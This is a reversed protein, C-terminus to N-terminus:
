VKFQAILQRLSLALESLNESAQSIEELSATQEEIAASAEETSAANEEAVASLTQIVDQVQNKQDDIVGSAKEIHNTMEQAKAMADTIENFKERTKEVSSEQEKVIADAEKMKLVARNADEKLKSVIADIDKTSRTSQEALKRIEDAVVAFGRGHEGARAAEIAANLALLNTQDAISAILTSAEGIRESSENTKLISEFVIGSAKGNETTKWELNEVIKLGDRISSSVSISAESLQRINGQDEEIIKGLAMLKESGIMTSEAQDSAGRAIESITQAVEFAATSSQHSTATLEEATAALQEASDSTKIIFHAVNERMDNLSKLMVGIEDKKKLYKASSDESDVRFDLQSLKKLVNTIAVIPASIQNAILWTSVLGLSILILTLSVLLLQLSKVPEMVEKKPITVTVAWTTGKISSYGSYKDEGKFWYEGHGTQGEIMRKTMEALAHARPDKQAEEFINYQSEILEIDPHAQLIGEKNIIFAYSTGGISIDKIIASLYEGPRIAVLAGVTKNRYLVPVAYATVISGDVKSIITDSVNPIGELASKVYSRDSLDKSTGDSYYAIGNLDVFALRMYGNRALDEALAKSRDTSENAPDSIRTRGAIQNLVSLEKEINVSVLSAADLAKNEINSSTNESLARSSMVIAIGGLALCVVMLMVATMGILKWKISKM